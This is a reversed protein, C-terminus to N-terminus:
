YQVTARVGLVTANKLRRGDADAVGGSPRIIYQLDPQVTFGPVVLAQYTAELATEARRRPIPTGTFLITDTDARRADDAYRAY